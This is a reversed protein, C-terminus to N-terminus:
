RNTLMKKYDKELASIGRTLAKLIIAESEEKVITTPGMNCRRIRVRRFPSSDVIVELGGELAAKRKSKEPTAAASTEVAKAREREKELAAEQEPSTYTGTSRATTPQIRAAADSDAEALMRKEEKSSVYNSERPKFIIRVGNAFREVDIPTILGSGAELLQKAVRGVKIVIQMESAFRLPIRELEPGEIRLFEDDWEEDTPVRSLDASLVAISSNTQPHTSARLLAEVAVSVRTYEVPEVRSSTFVVPAAPIPAAMEEEAQSLEAKTAWASRSKVNGPAAAEDSAISGVKIIAYGLQRKQCQLIIESDLDTNDGGFFSMLSRPQKCAQALAVVKVNYSKPSKNREIMVANLLRKISKEDVVFPKDPSKSDGAIVVSRAEKVAYALEKEPTIALQDADLFRFSASQGLSKGLEFLKRGVPGPGCVLVVPSSAQSYISTKFTSETSPLRKSSGQTYLWTNGDKEKTDSLTLSTEAYLMRKEMETLRTSGKIDALIQNFRSEVDALTMEDNTGSTDVDKSAIPKITDFIKSLVEKVDSNDVFTGDKGEEFGRLPSFISGRSQLRFASNLKYSCVLTSLILCLLIGVIMRINKDLHTQDSFSEM